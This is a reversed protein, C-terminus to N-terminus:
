RSVAVPHGSSVARLFAQADAGEAGSAAIQSRLEGLAVDSSVEHAEALPKMAGGPGQGFRQGFYVGGSTRGLAFWTAPEGAVAKTSLLVSTAGELLERSGDKMVLPTRSAKFAKVLKGAAVAQEVKAREAAIEAGRKNAMYVFLGVAVVLLLAGAGAWLATRSSSDAAKPGKPQSPNSRVPKKGSAQTKTM